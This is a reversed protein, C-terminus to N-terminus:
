GWSSSSSQIDSRIFIYLVPLLFYAPSSGKDQVAKELLTVGEGPICGGASHATAAAESFFDTNTEVQLLSTGLFLLTPIQQDPAPLPLGRHNDRFWPLPHLLGCSNHSLLARSGIIGSLLRPPRPLNSLM